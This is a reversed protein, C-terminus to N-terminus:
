FSFDCHTSLTFSLSCVIRYIICDISIEYMLRFRSTIKRMVLPMKIIPNELFDNQNKSHFLYEKHKHPHPKTTKNALNDNQVWLVDQWQSFFFNSKPDDNAFNKINLLPFQLGIRGYSERLYDLVNLRCIKRYARAAKVGNCFFFIDLIKTKVRWTLISVSIVLWFLIVQM